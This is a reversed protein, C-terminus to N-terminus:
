DDPMGRSSPADTPRTGSDPRETERPRPADTPQPSGGPRNTERPRPTGSPPPTGQPQPTEGPEPTRAPRPTGRPTDSPEPSFTPRPGPTQSGGQPTPNHRGAAPTGGSADTATAHHGDDGTPATRPTSSSVRTASPTATPTLTADPPTASSSGTPAPTPSDIRQATPAPSSGNAPLSSEAPAAGGGSAARPERRFAVVLVTGDGNTQVELTVRDGAAVNAVDPYRTRDVVFPVTDVILTDGDIRHVTGSVDTRVVRQMGRLANLELIRTEDIQQQLGARANEDLTITLRVQEQIRKLDYLPDGPLTGASAALTGNLALAAFLLGAVVAVRRVPGALTVLRRLAAGWLGPLSASPPEAAARALADVEALLKARGSAMAGDSPRAVPLQGRLAAAFQALDAESKEAAPLTDPRPNIGLLADIAADLRDEPSQNM